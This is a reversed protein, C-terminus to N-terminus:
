MEPIGQRLFFVLQFGNSVPNSHQFPFIQARFIAHWKIDAPHHCSIVFESNVKASRYLAAMRLLPRCIFLLATSIERTWASPM